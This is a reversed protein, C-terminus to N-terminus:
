LMAEQYRVSINKTSLVSSHIGGKLQSIYLGELINTAMSVTEDSYNEFTWKREVAKM